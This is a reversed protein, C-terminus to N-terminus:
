VVVKEAFKLLIGCLKFVQEKVEVSELVTIVGIVILGFRLKGM